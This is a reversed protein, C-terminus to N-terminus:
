SDSKLVTENWSDRIDDPLEDAKLRRLLEEEAVQRFKAAFYREYEETAEPVALRLKDYDCRRPEGRWAKKESRLGHLDDAWSQMARDTAIRDIQPNM